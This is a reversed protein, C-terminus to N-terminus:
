PVARSLARACAERVDQALRSDRQAAGPLARLVVLSGAPLEGIVPAAAHRVIRSVRHRAVSNGVQRNVILGVQPAGHSASDRDPVLLHATVRGSTARTGTRIAATFGARDRLRHRRPLM